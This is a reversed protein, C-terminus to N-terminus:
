NVEKELFKVIEDIGLREALNRWNPIHHKNSRLDTIFLDWEGSPFFRISFVDVYDTYFTPVAYSLTVHLFDGDDQTHGEDVTLRERQDRIFSSVKKTLSAVTEVKRKGESIKFDDLYIMKRGGRNKPRMLAPRV